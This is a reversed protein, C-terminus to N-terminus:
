VSGNAGLLKGVQLYNLWGGRRTKLRRITNQLRRSKGSQLKILQDQKKYLQLNMLGLFIISSMSYADDSTPAWWAFLCVILLASATDEREGIHPLGEVRTGFVIPVPQPTCKSSSVISSPSVTNRLPHIFFYLLVHGHHISMFLHSWCQM